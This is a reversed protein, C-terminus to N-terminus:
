KGVDIPEFRDGPRVHRGNVFDQWSMLRKGAPRLSHIEICGAGTAVTLVNTVTGPAASEETPTATAACLTVDVRKGSAPLYRCRVGPWPWFARCKRAILEAPEDFRVCGDVTRLKPAYTVRAEDQAVILEAGQAGPRQFMTRGCIPPGPKQPPSAMHRVFM